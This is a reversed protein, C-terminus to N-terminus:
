TISSLIRYTDLVKAQLGRFILFRRFGNRIHCEAASVKQRQFPIAFQCVPAIFLYSQYLYVDSKQEKMKWFQPPSHLMGATVAAAAAPHLFETLLLVNTQCWHGECFHVDDTLSHFRYVLPANGRTAWKLCLCKAAIVHQPFLFANTPDSGTPFM